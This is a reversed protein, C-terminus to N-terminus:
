DESDIIARAAAEWGDKQVDSLNDWDPLDYGDSSVSGVADVYANYALIASELINKM